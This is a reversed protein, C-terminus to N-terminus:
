YFQRGKEVVVGKSLFHCCEKSVLNKTNFFSFVSGGKRAGNSSLLPQLIVLLKGWCSSGWALVTLFWIGFRMPLLVGVFLIDEVEGIIPCRVCDAYSANLILGGRMQLM